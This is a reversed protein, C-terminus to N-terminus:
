AWRNSCVLSYQYTTPLRYGSGPNGYRRSAAGPLSAATITDGTKVNLGPNSLSVNNLTPSANMPPNTAGNYMDNGQIRDFMIGFGGRVVTKGQGTLDYAFGVRPGFNKWTNNVLGKPIGNM